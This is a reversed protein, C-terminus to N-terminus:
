VGAGRGAEDLIFAVAEALSSVIRDPAEPPADTGYGRDIFITRCGAARGAAIDGSRDGVMYCAPLDISLRNASDILMGPKPKRCACGDGQRHPCVVIETLGLRESLVAHMQDIIAPDVLHNGIDPQNTVVVLTFGSDRLRAVSPAADAFLRFDELRRPAFPKGDRIESINLVGDRDLFVAPRLSSVTV